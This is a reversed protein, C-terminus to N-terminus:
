EGTQTQRWNEQQEDQPGSESHVYWIERKRQARYCEVKAQSTDKYKKSYKPQLQVYKDSKSIQKTKTNYREKGAIFHQWTYRM